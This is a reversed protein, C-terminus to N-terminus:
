KEREGTVFNVAARALAELETAGVAVQASISVDQATAGVIAAYRQMNLVTNTGGTDELDWEYGNYLFFEPMGIIDTGVTTRLDVILRDISSCWELLHSDRGSGLQYLKDKPRQYQLELYEPKCGYRICDYFARLLNAQNIYEGILEQRYSDYLRHEKTAM